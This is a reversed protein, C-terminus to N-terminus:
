TSVAISAAARFATGMKRGGDREVAEPDYRIAFECMALQWFADEDWAELPDSLLALLGEEKERRLLLQERLERELRKRM